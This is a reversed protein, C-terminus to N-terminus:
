KNHANRLYSLFETMIKLKDTYAGPTGPFHHIIINNYADYNHNAVYDKLIKNNYM